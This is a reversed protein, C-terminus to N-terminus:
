AAPELTFIPGTLTGDAAKARFHIPDDGQSAHDVGEIELNGANLGRRRIFEESMDIVNGGAQVAANMQADDVVVFDTIVEGRDNTFQAVYVGDKDADDASFSRFGTISELNDQTLVIEGGNHEQRTVTRLPEITHNGSGQGTMLAHAGRGLLGVAGVALALGVFPLKGVFGMQSKLWNVVPIAALFGAIISLTMQGNQVRGSAMDGIMNGVASFTTGIVNGTKGLFNSVENNGDMAWGWTSEGAADFWGGASNMVDAGTASFQNFFGQIANPGGTTETVTHAQTSAAIPAAAKAYETELFTDVAVADTLDITTGALASALANFEPVYEGRMGQIDANKVANTADTLRAREEPTLTANEEADDDDGGGTNDPDDDGTVTAGDNEGGDVLPDITPDAPTEEFRDGIIGRGTWETPIHADSDALFRYGAGLTYDAINAQTGLIRGGIDLHVERGFVDFTTADEGLAYELGTEGLSLGGAALGVGGVSMLSGRRWRFPNLGPADNLIGGTGIRVASRRINSLITENAGEAPNRWNVQFNKYNKIDAGFQQSTGPKVDYAGLAYRWGAAPYFKLRQNTVINGPKAIPVGFSWWAPGNTGAWRQAFDFFYTSSEARHRNPRNDETFREKWGLITEDAAGKGAQEERKIINRIADLYFRNNPDSMDVSGERIARDFQVVSPFPLQDSAGKVQSLRALQEMAFVAEQGFGTEIFPMIRAVFMGKAEVNTTFDIELRGDEGRGAFKNLIHNQWTRELNNGVIRSYVVPEGTHYNPNHLGLDISRELSKILEVPAARHGDVWLGSTRIEAMNALTHARSLGTYSDQLAAPAIEGSRVRELTALMQQGNTGNAGLYLDDTMAIMGDLEALLADKQARTLDHTWLTRDTEEGTREANTKYTSDVHERLRVAQARFDALASVNNNAFEDILKAADGGNEITALVAANLERIETTLGTNKFANDISEIVPRTINTSRPRMSAAPFWKAVNWHALIKVRNLRPNFEPLTVDSGDHEPLARAPNPAQLLRLEVAM